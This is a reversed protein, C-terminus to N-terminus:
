VYHKFSVIMPKIFKNFIIIQKELPLSIIDFLNGSLIEKEINKILPDDKRGEGYSIIFPLMINILQHEDRSDDVYKHYKKSICQQIM